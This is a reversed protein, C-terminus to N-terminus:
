DEGELNFKFLLDTIEVEETKGDSFQVVVKTDIGWQTHKIKEIVIVDKGDLTAENGHVIQSNFGITYGEGIEEDLSAYAVNISDDKEILSLLYDRVKTASEVGFWEYETDSRRALQSSVGVPEDDLFYMIYGVWTDTCNWGGMWYAKLRDQEIWWDLNINFDNALQMIDVTKENASSKDIRESIQKLTVM